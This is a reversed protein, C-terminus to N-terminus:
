PNFLERKRRKLLEEFFRYDTEIIFQHQSLFFQFKKIGNIVALVKKRQPLIINNPPMLLAQNTDVFKEIEIKTNKM